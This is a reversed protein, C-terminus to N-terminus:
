LSPARAGLVAVRDHSVRKRTNGLRAAAQRRALEADILDQVDPEPKKSRPASKTTM